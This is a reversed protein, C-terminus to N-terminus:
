RVARTRLSALDSGAEPESMGQCWIDDARMMRPLLTRKQAETGHQMIAPAINNMGIVNLHVPVRARTTEEACVLQELVGAGRGGYEQPWSVAAWGAAAMTANWTRLTQFAAEDRGRGRNAAIVEDTLNAALWARLEKRVQEVEPPYSFDVNGISEPRNVETM